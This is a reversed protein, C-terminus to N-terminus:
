DRSLRALMAADLEELSGLVVDATKIFKNDRNEPEPVAVCKMRAAKASLVGAPSDELALCSRPDVKLREAATIFIGPHPKHHPEQVGSYVIKFYRDVGLTRIAMNVIKPETSSAIAMPLGQGDLLELLNKAGPRLEGKRKFLKLFDATIREAIEERTPGQWPHRRYWWEVTGQLGLGLVHQFDGKKTTIGVTKLVDTQAEQWLRESDILLGDMDFIVAKIM